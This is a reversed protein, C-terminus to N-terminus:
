NTKSKQQIRFLGVGIGALLLLPLYDNIPATPPPPPGDDEQYDNDPPSDNNFLEGSPIPDNQAHVSSCIGLIFVSFILLVKKKMM